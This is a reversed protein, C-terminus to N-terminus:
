DPAVTAQAETREHLSGSALLYMLMSLQMYKGM